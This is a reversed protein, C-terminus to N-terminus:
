KGQLMGNGSKRISYVNKPRYGEVVDNGYSPIQPPAPPLSIGKEHITTGVFSHIDTADNKGRELSLAQMREELVDKKSQELALGQISSALDTENSGELRLGDMTSTLDNEAAGITSEELLLIGEVPTERLYAPETGLQLRAFMARKACDVSCWKELEEKKHLQFDRSRKTQQYVLDRVERNQKLNPRACLAYGCKEYINRELIMDDFDKPQFITLAQKFLTADSASPRAPDANSHSPLDVTNVIMDLIRDQMSKQYQINRAYHLATSKQQNNVQMRPVNDASCSEEERLYDLFSTM